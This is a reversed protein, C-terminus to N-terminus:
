SIISKLITTLSLGFVTNLSVWFVVSFSKLFLTHRQKVNKLQEKVSEAWNDTLKDLEAYASLTGSKLTFTIRKIYKRLSDVYSLKNKFFDKFCEEVESPSYCGNVYRKQKSAIERNLAEKITTTEELIKENEAILSTESRDIDSPDITEEIERILKLKKELFTIEEKKVRNEGLSYPFVVLSTFLAFIALVVAFLMPIDFDGIKLISLFLPINLAWLVFYILFSFSYLIYFSDALHDIRLEMDIKPSSLIFIKGFLHSILVVTSSLYSAAIIYRAMIEVSVNMIFFIYLITGFVFINTSRWFLRGLRKLNPYSESILKEKLIIRSLGRNNLAGMRCLMAASLIIGALGVGLLALYLEWLFRWTLIWITFITVFTACILDLFNNSFWIIVKNKTIQSIHEKSKKQLKLFIISGVCWIVFQGIKIWIM